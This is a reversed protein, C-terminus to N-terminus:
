ANKLSSLTAIRARVAKMPSRNRVEPIRASLLCTTTSDISELWTTTVASTDCRSSTEAVTPPAAL